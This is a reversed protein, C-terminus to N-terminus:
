TVRCIYLNQLETRIVFHNVSTRLLKHSRGSTAPLMAVVMTHNSEPYVEVDTCEKNAVFM